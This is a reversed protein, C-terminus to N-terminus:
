YKQSTIVRLRGRARCRQLLIWHKQDIRTGRTLRFIHLSEEAFHPLINGSNRFDNFLFLFFFGSLQGHNLLTRSSCSWSTKASISLQGATAVTHDRYQILSHNALPANFIFLSQHCLIHQVYGPKNIAASGVFSLASDIEYWSFLSACGRACCHWLAFRCGSFFCWIYGPLLHETTM